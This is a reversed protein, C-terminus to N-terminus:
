KGYKDVLEGPADIRYRIEISGPGSVFSVIALIIAGARPIPGDAPFDSRPLSGTMSNTELNGVRRRGRTGEGSIELSMTGDSSREEVPSCHLPWPLNGLESIAGKNTRSCRTSAKTRETQPGKPGFGGVDM